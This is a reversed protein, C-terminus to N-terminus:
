EDAMDSFIRDLVKLRDQSEYIPRGMVIFDSGLEKASKVNAVRKQDDSKSDLRIAPTIALLSPSVSKIIEIEDLSCVLGDLGSEHVMKAMNLAVRPISDNYIATCGENDFSTLISVAIIKMSMNLRAIERMAVSGSSAHITIMYVGMNGCERIAHLMTNPIDYLKLDLFIPFGLDQLVSVFERGDRIFSALGVKLWIDKHRFHGAIEKALALNEDRTNMDLAVCLKM